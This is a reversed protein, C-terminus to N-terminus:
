PNIHKGTKPDYYVRDYIEFPKTAGFVSGGTYDNKDYIAIYNGKEDKGKSINFENLDAYISGSKADAKGWSLSQKSKSTGNIFSKNQNLFSQPNFGKVTNKVRYYKTGSGFFRKVKGKSQEEPIYPSEEFTNFVQKRGMTMNLADIKTMSARKSPGERYGKVSKIYKPYQFAEPITELSKAEAVKELQKGKDKLYYYKNLYLAESMLREDKKNTIDAKNAGNYNKLGARTKPGIIGDAKGVNYGLKNLATQMAKISNKSAGKYDGSSIATSPNDFYTKALTTLTNKLNAFTFLEGIDAKATNNDYDTGKFWPRLVKEYYAKSSTDGGNSAIKATLAPPNLAVHLHDGEKLVYLGESQLAKTVEAVSSGKQKLDRIRIDAADGTLHSSNKVGGALSNGEETRLLSTITIPLNKAVRNLKSILNKNSGTLSVKGKLNFNEVENNTVNSIPSKKELVSSNEHTRLRGKARDIKIDAERLLVKMKAITAPSNSTDITNQYKIKDNEYGSILKELGKTVSSFKGSEEEKIENLSNKATITNPHDAGFKELFRDYRKEADSVRIQSKKPLKSLEVLPETGDTGTGTGSVVEKKDVKGFNNEEWLQRIAKEKLTKGPLPKPANTQVEPSDRLEILLPAIARRETAETLIKEKNKVDLAKAAKTDELANYYIGKDSLVSENVFAKAEKLQSKNFTGITAVKNTKPNYRTIKINGDDDIVSDIHGGLANIGASINTLSAGPKFVTNINDRQRGFTFKEQSTFESVAEKTVANTDERTLEKELAPKILKRLAEDDLGEKEIREPSYGFRNALSLLDARTGNLLSSVQSDRDDNNYDVVQYTKGDQGVKSYSQSKYNSIITNFKEDWNVKPSFHLGKVYGSWPEDLDIADGDEGSPLKGKIRMEGNEGRYLEFAGPNKDMANLIRRVRLPTSPDIGTGGPAIATRYTTLLENSSTLADKVGQYQKKITRQRERGERTNLDLGNLEDGMSILSEELQGQFIDSTDEPIDTIEFSEDEQAKEAKTIREQAIRDRESLAYEREENAVTRAKGDLFDKEAGEIAERAGEGAAASLGSGGFAGINIKPRARTYQKEAM